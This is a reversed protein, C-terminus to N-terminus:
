YVVEDDSIAGVNRLQSLVWAIPDNIMDKIQGSHSDMIVDAGGIAADIVSDKRIERVQGYGSGVGFKDRVEASDHAEMIAFVLRRLFDPNALPWAASKIDWPEDAGKVRVLVDANAGHGGASSAVWVEPIFGLMNLADCMGIIVAGRKRIDEEPVMASFTVNVLVRVIRDRRPTPHEVYEIMNYPDGSLYADVDPTDGCVNWDYGWTNGTLMGFRERVESTVEEVVDVPAEDWGAEFARAAEAFTNHYHFGSSKENTSAKYPIDKRGAGYRAMALAKDFTDAVFLEHRTGKSDKVTEYSYPANGM